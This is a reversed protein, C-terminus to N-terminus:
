LVRAKHLKSKLIERIRNITRPTGDSDYFININNKAEFPFLETSISDGDAIIFKIAQNIGLFHAVYVHYVTLNEKGFHKSLIRINDSMLCAALRSNVTPNFIDGTIGCLARLRTETPKIIQFLGRATSTRSKANANFNSEIHAIKSMYEYPVKYESSAKVLSDKVPHISLLLFLTTSLIKIM